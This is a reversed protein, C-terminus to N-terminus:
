SSPPIQSLSLFGRKISFREGHCKGSEAAIMREVEKRVDLQQSALQELM